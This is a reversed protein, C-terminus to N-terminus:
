INPRPMTDIRIKVNGHGSRHFSSPLLPEVELVIGVCREGREGTVVGNGQRGPPVPHGLLVEALQLGHV